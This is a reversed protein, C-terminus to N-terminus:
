LINYVCVYSIFTGLEILKIIRDGHSLQIVFTTGTTYLYHPRQNVSRNISLSLSLSFKFIIARLKKRRLIMIRSFFLWESPSLFSVKDVGFNSHFFEISRQFHLKESTKLEYGFSNASIWELNSMERMCLKNIIYISYWMMYKHTNFIVRSRWSIFWGVRLSRKTPVLIILQISKEHVRILM